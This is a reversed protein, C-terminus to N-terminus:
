AAREESLLEAITPSRAATPMMGLDRLARRLANSWALYEKGYDADAGALIKADAQCCRATLLVVQEILARQTASPEGGVHAVLEARTNRMLKALRTRGDVKALRHPRSYPGIPYTVAM